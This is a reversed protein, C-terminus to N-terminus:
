GGLGGVSPVESECADMAAQLQPSPTRSGDAIAVAGGGPFTPDRFSPMGHTRVCKAWDLWEQQQAPTLDADGGFWEPVLDQCAEGAAEFAASEPDVGNTRYGYDGGPTAEPDPWSPVGNERMCRSYAQGQELPSLDATASTTSSGDTAGSPQSTV